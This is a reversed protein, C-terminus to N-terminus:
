GRFFEFALKFVQPGVPIKDAVLLPAENVPNLFFGDKEKGKPRPLPNMFLTSRESPRRNMIERRPFPEEFHCPHLLAEIPAADARCPLRFLTFCGWKAGGPFGDEDRRPRMVRDTLLIVFQTSQLGYVAKDSDTPKHFRAHRKTHGPLFSRRSIRGWRRPQDRLKTRNAQRRKLLIAERNRLLSEQSPHADLFAKEGLSSRVGGRCAPEFAPSMPVIMAQVDHALIHFQYHGLSRIYFNRNLRCM